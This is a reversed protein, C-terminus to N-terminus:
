NGAGAQVFADTLQDLFEDTSMDTTFFGEAVPVLYVDVMGAPFANLASGMTKGSELYPIVATSLPDLTDNEMGEVIPIFGFEKM